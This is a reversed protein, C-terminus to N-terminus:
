ELIESANLYGSKFNFRLQGLFKVGDKPYLKDNSIRDGYNIIGQDILNRVLMEDGECVVRNDQLKCIAIVTQRGDNQLKYFEVYKM